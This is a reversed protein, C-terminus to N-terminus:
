RHIVKSQMERALSPLWREGRVKKLQAVREEEKKAAEKKAADKAELRSLARQCQDRAKSM